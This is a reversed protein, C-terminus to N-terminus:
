DIKKAERLLERREKLIKELSEIEKELKKILENVTEESEDEEESDPFYDTDFGEDEDVIFLNDEETPFEDESEEESDHYRFPSIPSQSNMSM